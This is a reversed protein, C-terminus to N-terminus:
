PAAVISFTLRYNGHDEVHVIQTAGFGTSADFTFTDDGLQDDGFTLFSDADWVQVRLSFSQGPAPAPLAGAYVAMEQSDGSSIGVDGDGTPWRGAITQAGNSIWYSVYIDGQSVGDEDDKINITDLLVKLNATLFAGRLRYDGQDITFAAPLPSFFTGTADSSLTDDGDPWDSERVQVSVNASTGARPTPLEGVFFNSL